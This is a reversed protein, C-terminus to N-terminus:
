NRAMFDVQRVCARLKRMVLVSTLSREVHGPKKTRKIGRQPFTLRPHQRKPDLPLARRECACAIRSYAHLRDVRQIGLHRLLALV